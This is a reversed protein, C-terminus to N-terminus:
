RHAIRALTAEYKDTVVDWLYEQQIRQVAKIRYAAVQAPNKLLSCMKERIDEASLQYKVGADRIAYANDPTDLTMACAGYGLAKLLGLSTGGPQNGHLVFYCNHHLVKVDIPDYIGGPFLIRPDQTAMLSKAYTSDGSGGFLLKMDTDLGQFADLLYECSNEPVHRSLFLLYKGKEVGYRALIAAQEAESIESEDAPEPVAGNPIYLAPPKCHFTKNFYDCVSVADIIMQDVVKTCLWASAYIFSRAIPGWKERRWDFGNPNLAVRHGFLKPIICLSAISPNFALIADPKQGLVHIMSLFSHTYTDTIKTKLSPLVIRRIGEYETKTDDWYGPRCYVIVEHGRQVLRKGVEEGCTELGGYQAPVGRIGIMAIRM